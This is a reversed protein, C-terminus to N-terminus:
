RLMDVTIKEKKMCYNDSLTDDDALRLIPNDHDYMYRINTNAYDNLREIICNILYRQKLEVSYSDHDDFM